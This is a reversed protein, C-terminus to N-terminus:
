MENISELVQLLEPFPEFFHSHGPLSHFKTPKLESEVRRAETMPIFPDDESHFQHWVPCNSRMAEFNYPNSDGQPYYGSIRESAIGLDTYTASVLVVAKLPHAEAYRMAAQAGSSHGVLVTNQDTGLSEIFPIWIQRKAEYPDPFNECVCDINKGKLQEYLHGYWNSKRVNTCGNGPLIIVKM